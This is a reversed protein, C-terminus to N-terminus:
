PGVVAFKCGLSRQGQTVKVEGRPIRDTYLWEMKNCKLWDVLFVSGLMTAVLEHTPVALTFPEDSDIRM